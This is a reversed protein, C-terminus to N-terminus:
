VLGRVVDGVQDAIMRHTAPGIMHAAAPAQMPGFQMRDLEDTEGTCEVSVEIVGEIDPQLMDLMAQGVLPPEEGLTTLPAVKHRLWLLLPRRSLARLLLRMRGLWAQQLEEQVILFREPSTMKLTGLLHKNFHFETFDIERYIAELMPSAALFRDNRRPHVRYFRNSLNQAGMVQIVALQAGQAIGLLEPDQVYADLGANAAGLNVCPRALAQEVLAVFPQDVFKGFTENGGLFAVYPKDLKRRPGRCMLKSSGYRCLLDEPAGAGPLEFSM